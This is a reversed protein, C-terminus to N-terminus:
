FHSFELHSTIKLSSICQVQIVIVSMNSLPIVSSLCVLDQFLFLYLESLCVFSCENCKQQAVFNCDVSDRRVGCLSKITTWSWQNVCSINFAKRIVVSYDCFCVWPTKTNGCQLLSITTLDNFGEVCQLPQLPGTTLVGAQCVHTM